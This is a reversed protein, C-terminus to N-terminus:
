RAISELEARLVQWLDLFGEPLIERADKDNSFRGVIPVLSRLREPDRCLARVMEELLPSDDSSTWRGGGGDLGAGSGILWEEEGTALLLLLYRVFRERNQLIGKMIAGYREEPVGEIPLNLAFRLELDFAEAKLHIAFFSTLAPLSSDFTAPESLGEVVSVAREKPLTIPWIEALALGHLRPIKGELVMQWGDGTKECRVELRARSLAKQAALLAMEAKKEESSREVVSGPVYEELVAMLGSKELLGEVKGVKSQKGVLEALLEVNSGDIGQSTANSSGVFVRTDTGTRCVYAKAHLGKLPTELINASEEPDESEAAQSLHFVHEFLALTEPALRALEEPRSVLAVARGTTSALTELGRDSVFPSIVLLSGSEPPKWPRSDLGPVHFRVEGFPEPLEWVTRAIEDALRRCRQGESRGGGQVTLRPLEEILRALPGNARRRRGGPEGDLRLIM